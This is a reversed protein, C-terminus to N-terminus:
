YSLVVDGDVLGDAVLPDTGNPTIWINMGAVAGAGKARMRVINFGASTATGSVTLTGALSLNGSSDVQFALTTNDTKFGKLLPGFGDGKLSLVPTAGAGPRYNLTTAQDNMVGTLLNMFDNVWTATFLNPASLGDSKTTLPM